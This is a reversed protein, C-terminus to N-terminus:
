EGAMEVDAALALFEERPVSLFTTSLGDKGIYLTVTEERKDQVGFEGGDVIVKVDMEFTM